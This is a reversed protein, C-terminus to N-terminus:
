QKNLGKRLGLLIMVCAALFGLTLSVLLFKIIMEQSITGTGDGALPLLEKGANWMGALLNALWNAFTCYILLWFTTKQLTTSLSIKNWIVGSLILFTGNVVGALHSSLGLRPRALFPIALGTLLALTFLLVGLQILSNSQKHTTVMTFLPKLNFFSVLYLLFAIM